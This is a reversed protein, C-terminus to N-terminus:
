RGRTIESFKVSKVRIAFDPGYETELFLRNAMAPAMRLRIDFCGNPYFDESMAAHTKCNLPGASDINEVKIQSLIMDRQKGASCDAHALKCYFAFHPARGPEYSDSVLKVARASLVARKYTTAFLYKHVDAAAACTKDQKDYEERFNYTSAFPPEAKFQGADGYIDQAAMDRPVGTEDFFVLLRKAECLGFTNVIHARTYFDMYRVPRSPDDSTTSRGVDVIMAGVEGFVEKKLEALPLSKVQGVTLADSERPFALLASVIIALGAARPAISRM